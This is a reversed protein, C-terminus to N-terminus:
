GLSGISQDQFEIISEERIINRSLDQSLILNFEQSSVLQEKNMGPVPRDLLSHHPFLSSFDYFVLGNMPAFKAISDKSVLANLKM